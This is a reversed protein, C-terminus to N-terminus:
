PWDEKEPDHEELLLTVGYKALGEALRHFFGNREMSRRNTVIMSGSDVAIFYDSEFRKRRLDQEQASM